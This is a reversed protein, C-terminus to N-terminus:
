QHDSYITASVDNNPSNPRLKQASNIQYRNGYSNYNSGSVYTNSQNYSNQISSRSLDPNQLHQSMYSRSNSSYYSEVEPQKRKDGQVDYLRSSHHSSHYSTNHISNGHIANSGRSSNHLSHNSTFSTNMNQPIVQINRNQLMVNMDTPAATIAESVLTPAVVPGSYPSRVRTRESVSGRSFSNQVMEKQLLTPSLKSSRSISDMMSSESFSEHQPFPSLHSAKEIEEEKEKEENEKERKKNRKQYCCFIILNVILILVVVGVIIWTILNSISKENNKNDNPSTTTCNPYRYDYPIMIREPNEKVVITNCAGDEYCSVTINRLDCIEVPAGFKHIEVTLEPINNLDFDDLKLKYIDNPISKLNTGGLYMTKLNKLDGINEPLQIVNENLSLDLFNFNQCKLIQSPFGELQDEYFNLSEINCTEIEEIKELDSSSIEIERLKPLEFFRAPMTNNTLSVGELIIKDLEELLPFKSFDIINEEDPPRMTIDVVHGNDCKIYHYEDTVNCCGPVDIEGYASFFKYLEQCDESQKFSKKDRPLLCFASIVFFSFIFLKYFYM